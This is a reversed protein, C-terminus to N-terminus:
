ITEQIHAQGVAIYMCTDQLSGAQLTCTEVQYMVGQPHARAPFLDKWEKGKEKNNKVYGSPKVEKINEKNTKCTCSL